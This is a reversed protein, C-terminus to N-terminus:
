QFIHIVVNWSYLTHGHGKHVVLIPKDQRFGNSSTLIFTDKTDDEHIGTDDLQNAKYANTCEKTVWDNLIQKTMPQDKTLM